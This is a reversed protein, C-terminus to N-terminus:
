GNNGSLKTIRLRGALGINPRNVPEVLNTFRSSIPFDDGPGLLPVPPSVNALGCARCM